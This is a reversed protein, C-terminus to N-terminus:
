DWQRPRLRKSEPSERVSERKGDRSDDNWTTSTRHDSAHDYARYGFRSADFGRGRRLQRVVPSRFLCAIIGLAVLVLFGYFFM